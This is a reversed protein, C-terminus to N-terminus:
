DLTPILPPIDTGPFLLHDGTCEVALGDAGTPIGAQPPNMSLLRAFSCPLSLRRAGGSLVVHHYEVMEEM